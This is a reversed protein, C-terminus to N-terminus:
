VSRKQVFAMIQGNPHPYDKSRDTLDFHNEKALREFFSYPFHFTKEGTMFDIQMQGVAEWNGGIASKSDREVRMDTHRRYADLYDNEAYIKDVRRNFLFTSLRDLLSKKKKPQEPVPNTSMTTFDPLDPKM